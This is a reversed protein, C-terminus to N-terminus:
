EAAPPLRMAEGNTEDYVAGAPPCGRGKVLAYVAPIM